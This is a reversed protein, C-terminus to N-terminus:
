DGDKGVMISSVEKPGDAMGILKPAPQQEERRDDNARDRAADCDVFPEVSREACFLSRVSKLLDRMRIGVEAFHAINVLIWSQSNSPDCKYSLDEAMTRPSARMQAGRDCLTLRGM